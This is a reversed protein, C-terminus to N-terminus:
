SSTAPQRPLWVHVATGGDIGDEIWIRGHHHAVVKACTALGIGSGPYDDPGNMRSFMAFVEERHAPDIGIGNDRVVITVGDSAETAEVQVRPEVDDRAFKVANGILNQLLQGLLARHGVVKPLAFREVVIGRERTTPDLDLLVQGLVENLDVPEAAGIVSGAAAFTLLDEILQRMRSTARRAVDLLQDAPGDFAPTAALAMEV